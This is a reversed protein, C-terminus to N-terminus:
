KEDLKEVTVREATEKRFYHKLEGELHKQYVWRILWKQDEIGQRLKVKSFVLEGFDIQIMDEGVYGANITFNYIKDGFGFCWMEHLLDIYDDVVACKESFDEFNELVDEAPEARDQFLKKGEFRLNGLVGTDFESEKLQEVAKQRRRSAKEVDSYIEWPRLLTYPDWEILQFVM